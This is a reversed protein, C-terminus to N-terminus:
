FAVSLLCLFGLGVEADSFGHWFSYFVLFHHALELDKKCMYCTLLQDFFGGGLGGGYPIRFLLLGCLSKWSFFAGGMSHGCVLQEELSFTLLYVLM